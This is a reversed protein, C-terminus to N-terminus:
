SHPKDALDTSRFHFGYRPIIIPSREHPLCTLASIQFFSYPTSRYFYMDIHKGYVYSTMTHTVHEGEINDRM